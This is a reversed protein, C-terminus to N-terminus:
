EGSTATKIKPGDGHEGVVERLSVILKPGMAHLEELHQLSLKVLLEEADDTLEIVVQRRDTRAPRRRIMGRGSMRDVLEVASHHKIKLREALYGVTPGESGGPYGKVALMLQHQQPELGAGRAVSDSFVLFERIRYRLEALLEYTQKDLVPESPLM